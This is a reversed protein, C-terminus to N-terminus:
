KRDGDTVVEFLEGSFEGDLTVRFGKTELERGTMSAIEKGDPGRRVSYMADPNLDRVTIIRSTEAAGERFVGVLGGSRTDTNIRCFGDWGGVMPM